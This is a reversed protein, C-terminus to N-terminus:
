AARIVSSVAPLIVASFSPSVKWAAGTSTRQPAHGENKLFFGQNKSFIGKM